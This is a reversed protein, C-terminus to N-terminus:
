NSIRILHDVRTGGGKGGQEKAQREPDHEDGMAKQLNQDEREGSRHLEELLM